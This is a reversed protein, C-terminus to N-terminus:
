EEIAVKNSRPKAHEEHPGHLPHRVNQDMPVRGPACAPRPAPWKKITFHAPRATCATRRYVNARQYSNPHLKVFLPFMVPLWYLLSHTQRAPAGNYSPRHIGPVPSIIIALQQKKKTAKADM